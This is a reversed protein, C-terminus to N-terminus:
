DNDKFVREIQFAYDSGHETSEPLIDVTIQKYISIEQAVDQLKLATGLDFPVRLHYPETNGPKMAFVYIVGRTEDVDWGLVDYRGPPPWPDPYGLTSTALGLPLALAALGFAFTATRLWWRQFERIFLMVFLFCVTAAYLAYLVILLLHETM